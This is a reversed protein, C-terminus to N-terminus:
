AVEVERVRIVDVGVGCWLGSVEVVFCSVEVGDEMVEGFEM